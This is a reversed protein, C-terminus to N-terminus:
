SDVLENKREKLFGIEKEAINKPLDHQQSIREINAIAEEYRAVEENNSDLLKVEANALSAEADVVYRPRFEYKPSSEGTAIVRAKNFAEAEYENMSDRRWAHGISVQKHFQVEQKVSDPLFHPYVEEAAAFLMPQFKGKGRYEQGAWKLYNFTDYAFDDNEPLITLSVVNGWASMRDGFDANKAALEIDDYSGQKPIPRNQIYSKTLHEGETLLLHAIWCAPVITEWEQDYQVPDFGIERLEERETSLGSRYQTEGLKQGLVEAMRVQKLNKTDNWHQVRKQLTNYSHIGQPTDELIRNSFYGLASRFQVHSFDESQFEALVNLIQIFSEFNITKRCDTRFEWAFDNKYHKKIVQIATTPDGELVKEVAYYAPASLLRLYYVEDSFNFHISETTKEGATLRIDITNTDWDIDTIEIFAKTEIEAPNINSSFQIQGDIKDPNDASDPVFVYDTDGISGTISVM